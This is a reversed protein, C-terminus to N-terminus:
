RARADGAMVVRRGRRPDHRASGPWGAAWRPGAKADARGTAGRASSQRWTAAAPRAFTPKKWKIWETVRDDAGLIIARARRMTADLPHDAEDLWRDVEANRNM